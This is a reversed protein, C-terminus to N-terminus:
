NMHARHSRVGPRGKLGFVHNAVDEFLLNALEELRGSEQALCVAQLCTALAWQESADARGALEDVDALTVNRM